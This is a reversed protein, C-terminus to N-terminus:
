RTKLKLLIEAAKAGAKYNSYQPEEEPCYSNDDDDSSHGHQICNLFGDLWTVPFHPENALADYFAQAAKSLNQRAIHNM